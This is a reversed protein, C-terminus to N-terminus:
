TTFVDRRSHCTLISRIGLPIELYLNLDGHGARFWGKRFLEGSNSASCFCAVLLEEIKVVPNNVDAKLISYIFGRLGQSLSM